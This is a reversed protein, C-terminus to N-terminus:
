GGLRPPEEYNPIVLEQGPKILDPNNGIQEKNKPYNYIEPWRNMDGYYKQAIKSLWDGPQVIHILQKRPARRGGGPYGDPIPYMFYREPFKLSANRPFTALRGIRWCERERIGSKHLLGKVWPAGQSGWLIYPEVNITQTNREYNRANRVIDSAFDTGHRDTPKHEQISPDGEWYPSSLIRAKISEVDGFTNLQFVVNGNLNIAGLTIFGDSKFLIPPIGGVATMTRILVFHHNNPMWWNRLDRALWYVRPMDM